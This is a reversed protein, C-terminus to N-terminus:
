ETFTIAQSSKLLQIANPINARVSKERSILCSVNCARLALINLPTIYVIQHLYNLCARSM